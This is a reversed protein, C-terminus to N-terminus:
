VTKSFKKTTKPALKSTEAIIAPVDQAALLVLFSIMSGGRFVPTEEVHFGRLTLPFGGRRLESHDIFRGNLTM